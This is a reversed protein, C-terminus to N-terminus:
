NHPTSHRRKTNRRLLRGAQLPLCVPRGTRTASGLSPSSDRLRKGARRPLSSMM